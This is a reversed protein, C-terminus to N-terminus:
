QRDLKIAHEVEKLDFGFDQIQKVIGYLALLNHIKIVKIDRAAIFAKLYKEIAQQRHFAVINTLNPNDIIKAVALIDKGVYFFWEEVQKKM